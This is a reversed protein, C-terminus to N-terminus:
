GRGQATEVCPCGEGRGHDVESQMAKIAERVEEETFKIVRESDLCLCGANIVLELAAEWASDALSDDTNIWTEPETPCRIDYRKTLESIRKFLAIDWDKIAM